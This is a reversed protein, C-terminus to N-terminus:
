ILPRCAPLRDYFFSPSSFPIRPAFCCVKPHCYFGNPHHLPRCSLNKTYHINAFASPLTYNSQIPNQIEQRSHGFLFLILAGVTDVVVVIYLGYCGNRRSVARSLMNDLNRRKRKRKKEQGEKGEEELIESKKPKIDKHVFQRLIACPADIEWRQEASPGPRLCGWTWSDSLGGSSFSRECSM